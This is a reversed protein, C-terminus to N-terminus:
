EGRTTVELVSLSGDLTAELGDGELDIEVRVGCRSCQTDTSPLEADPDITASWELRAYCYPWGREIAFALDRVLSSSRVLEIPNLGDGVTYGRTM